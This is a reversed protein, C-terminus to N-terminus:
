TSPQQPNAALHSECAAAAAKQTKHRSLVRNDHVAYYTAPLDKPGVTFIVEVVFYQKCKSAWTRRKSVDTTSKKARQAWTLKAKAM